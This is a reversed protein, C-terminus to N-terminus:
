IQLQNAFIETPARLFQWFILNSDIVFHFNLFYKEIKCFFILEIDFFLLFIINRCEPLFDRL